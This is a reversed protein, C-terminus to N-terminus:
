ASLVLRTTFGSTGKACPKDAARGDASLATGPERQHEPGLKLDGALARQGRTPGGMSACAHRTHM